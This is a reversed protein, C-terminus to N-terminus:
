GIQVRRHRQLMAEVHPALGSGSEGRDYTASWSLLKESTVSPDRGKNRWFYVIQELCAQEIDNPLTPTASTARTTYGGDYTIEYLKREYGAIPDYQLGSQIASTWIWGRLAFISGADADHLEYNSSDILQGNFKITTITLLPTRTVFLFPTGFAEVKEIIGTTKYLLRGVFAEILASAANLYREVRADQAGSDSTLGLEDLATALSTLANAALAM